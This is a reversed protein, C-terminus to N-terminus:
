ILWVGFQIQAHKSPLTQNLFGCRLERHVPTARALTPLSAPAAASQDRLRFGEIQQENNGAPVMPQRLACGDCSPQASAQLCDEDLHATIGNNGHAACCSKATSETTCCTCATSVLAEGRKCTCATCMSPCVTALAVVLTTLWAVRKGAFKGM